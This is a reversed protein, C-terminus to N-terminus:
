AQGGSHWRLLVSLRRYDDISMAGRWVFVRVSAPFNPLPEMHKLWLVAGGLHRVVREIQYRQGQAVDALRYVLGDPSIHWHGEPSRIEGSKFKQGLLYFVLAVAAILTGFVFAATVGLESWVAWFAMCFGFAPAIIELTRWVLPLERENWTISWAGLESHSM